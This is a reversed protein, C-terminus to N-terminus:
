INRNLRNGMEIWLWSLLFFAAMIAACYLTVGGYGGALAPNLFPYPYWGIRAGRILSYALYVLPFILWLRAHRLELRALPPQYLWDAIVALPMVIHLQVNVWPLLAGLDENRLLAIYVLGVVTIYVVGAGRILDDRLTPQRRPLLALAAFILILSVIINSLNTFYSFFNVVSFGVGISISLQNAIAALTLLGFLLRAAVLFTRKNEM